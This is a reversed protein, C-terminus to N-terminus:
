FTREQKLFDAAKRWSIGAVKGFDHDDSVLVDAKHVKATAAHIADRPALRYRKILGLAESLIETNAEALTLNPLSLFNETFTVAAEFGKAVNLKFFLEDFTLASTIARVQGRAILDLIKACREGMADESACAFIFVNSDLYAAMGIRWNKRM